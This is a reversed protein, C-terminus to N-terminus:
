KTLLPLECIKRRNLLGPVKVFAIVKLPFHLIIQTQVDHNNPKLIPTTWSERVIIIGFKLILKKSIPLVFPATLTQRFIHSKLLHALFPAFTKNNIIRHPVLYVRRENSYM